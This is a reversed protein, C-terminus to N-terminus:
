LTEKKNLNKKKLFKNYIENAYDESNLIELNNLKLIIEKNENNEKWSFILKTNEISRIVSIGVEYNLKKILGNIIEKNM